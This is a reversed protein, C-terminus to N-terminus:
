VDLIGAVEFKAPHHKLWNWQFIAFLTVVPAYLVFFRAGDIAQGGLLQGLAAVINLQGALTVIQLLSRVVFVLVTGFLAAGLARTVVFRLELEAAVPLLLWLCLFVGVTFPVATAIARDPFVEWVSAGLVLSRLGINIAEGALFSAGVLLSTVLAVVAGRRRLLQKVSLAM